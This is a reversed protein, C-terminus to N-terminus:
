SHSVKAKRYNRWPLMARLSLVQGSQALDGSYGPLRALLTQWDKGRLKAM